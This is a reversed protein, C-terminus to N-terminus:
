IGVSISHLIYRDSEMDEINLVSNISLIMKDDVVSLIYNLICVDDKNFDLSGSTSQKAGSHSNSIVIVNSTQRDFITFIINKIYSLDTLLPIKKLIFDKSGCVTDSLNCDEELLVIGNESCIYATESYSNKSEKNWVEGSPLRIDDTHYITQNAKYSKYLKFKKSNNTNTITIIDINSKLSLSQIQLLAGSYNQVVGDIYTCNWLIRFKLVNNSYPTCGLKFIDIKRNNIDISINLNCEWLNKISSIQLGLLGFTDGDSGFEGVTFWVPEIEENRIYFSSSDNSVSNTELAKIRHLAKEFEANKKKDNSQIHSVINSMIRATEISIDGGVAQYTISFIGTHNDLLFIFNYIGNKGVCPDIKNFLTLGYVYDKGYELIRGTHEIIVSDGYFLGALPQIIARNKINITHLENSVKNELSVGTIDFMLCKKIPSYMLTDKPSSDGSISQDVVLSLNSLRYDIPRKLNLSKSSM